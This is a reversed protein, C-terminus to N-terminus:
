SLIFYLIKFMLDLTIFIITLGLQDTRKCIEDDQIKIINNKNNLQMYLKKIKNNKIKIKNNLEQIQSM